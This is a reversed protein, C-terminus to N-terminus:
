SSLSDLIFILGPYFLFTGPYLNVGSASSVSDLFCPRKLNSMHSEEFWIDGAAAVCQALHLVGFSSPGTAGAM